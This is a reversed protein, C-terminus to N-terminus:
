LTQRLEPIQKNITLFELMTDRYKIRSDITEYSKAAMQTSIGDKLVNMFHAINNATDEPLYIREDKIITNLENYQNMLLVLNDYFAKDDGSQANLKDFAKELEPLKKYIRSIAGETKEFVHSTKFHQLNLDSKLREIKVGNYWQFITPILISIVACVGITLWYFLATNPTDSITINFM